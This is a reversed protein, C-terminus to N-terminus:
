DKVLALARLAFALSPLMRWRWHSDEEAMNLAFDASEALAYTYILTGNNRVPLDVPHHEHLAKGLNGYQLNAGSYNSYGAARALETASIVRDPAHYHAPLMKVQGASLEPLIAELARTYAQEGADGDRAAVGLESDIVKRAKQIADPVDVGELKHVPKGDRWAWCKAGSEGHKAVLRYGRYERTEDKSMTEKTIHRQKKAKRHAYYARTSMRYRTFRVLIPATKCCESSNLAEYSCRNASSYRLPRPLRSWSRTSHRLRSAFSRCSITAASAGYRQSSCPITTSDVVLIPQNIAQRGRAKLDMPDIGSGDLV